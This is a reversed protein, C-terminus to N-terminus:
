QAGENNDMNDYEFAEKIKDYSTKNRSVVQPVDWTNWTFTRYGSSTVSEPFQYDVRNTVKNMVVFSTVIGDTMRVSLTDKTNVLLDKNKEDNLVLLRSPDTFNLRAWPIRVNLTNGDFYFHSDSNKFRGPILTSGDEFTADIKVGSKTVYEPTFQRMMREFIGTASISSYYSGRSANYNPIVLLDAKDQSEININFEVGSWNENVDPALMYEGNKRDITDLYIMIKQKNFDPLDNMVAKIYFYSEDTTFSLMSLLDSGRLNMTYDTPIPSDLAVIGYNQAPDVTNHWLIGHKYPIMLPSTFESSQGWEDAWEYVLGGMAGSDRIIKILSVLGEGQQDETTSGSTSLGFESILVPYKRQSTMLNNLYEKYGNFSPHAENTEGNMLGPQNPFIDYAGFFGSTVKDTIVMHNTIDLSINNLQGIPNYKEKYLSELEPISVISTPHQMSYNTQEYQYTKNIISALWAVTPTAEVTASVYEGNFQYTSNGADTLAVNDTSLEPDVLYGLLYSSVDNVYLDSDKGDAKKINAKGHIANVTNEVAQEFASQYAEDLYNGSVPEHDVSINQLLYLLQDPHNYNYTDLARYFVSPLRTYVRITNANMNAIQEFWDTYFAPDNPLTGDADGPVTSGINVGNIYMPKWVGNQYVAFQKDVIKSVLRSGDDAVENVAKFIDQDLPEIEKLLKSMFPVYFHWYFYSLDGESNVSFYKYLTAAGWFQKIKDPGRYDTFDGALYYSHQNTSQNAIIAPFQSDLGFPMLQNKGEETLNLNFWALVTAEESPKVIEFWNYYDVTETGYHNVNDETMAIQISKGTFGIDRQLVVIRNNGAIVIGGGTLNWKKGYQQEYIGRIWNPVDASSSLDSFFKGALGTFNVGFIEELEKSVSPKTPDGAINYEGIVTTGKAYYTSILGIEDKTLGSVGEPEEGNIKSKGTGYMDSLFIVDPVNTLKQLPKNVFEGGVLFNGYYDKSFNYSKNTEPNKIGLYGMLWYLGRQKSYDLKIMEGSANKEVPFTKNLVVIDLDKSPTIFWWGFPIVLVMFLFLLVWYRFNIRKKIM